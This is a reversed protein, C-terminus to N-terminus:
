GFILKTIIIAVVLLVLLVFTAPGPKDEQQETLETM